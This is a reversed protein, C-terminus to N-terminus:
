GVSQHAHSGTILDHRFHQLDSSRLLRFAQETNARHIPMGLM